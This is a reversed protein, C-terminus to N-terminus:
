HHHSHAAEKKEAHKPKEDKTGNSAEYTKAMEKWLEQNNKVSRSFQKNLESMLQKNQESSFDLQKNFSEAVAQMSNRVITMEEEIAQQYKNSLTTWDAQRMHFANQFLDLMSKNYESMQRFAKEYMSSINNGTSQGDQSMMSWPSLFSSFMRSYPFMNAYNFGSQHTNRHANDAAMNFANGWFNFFLDAQKKWTDIAANTSENFWEGAENGANFMENTKKAHKTEM